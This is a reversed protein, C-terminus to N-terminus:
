GGALMAALGRRGYFPMAFITALALMTGLSDYGTDTLHIGDSLEDLNNAFYGYSDRTGKFRNINNVLLDLKGAYERLLDCTEPTNGATGSPFYTPAHLITIHGDAILSDSIEEINDKYDDASTLHVSQADNDGLMISCVVKAGPNAAVATAIASKANNLNTSGELWDTTASGSIGRNISIITRQGFAKSLIKTAVTVADKGSTAGQGYTISNGIWAFIIPPYELVAAVPISYVKTEDADEYEVVYYLPVNPDIDPEDELTGGTEGALLTSGNPVFDAVTNRHWKKTIPAVGGSGAGAAFSLTTNTAEALTVVGATLEGSTVGHTDGKLYKLLPGVSTSTNVVFVSPRGIATVRDASSDILTAVTVNAIKGILEVNTSNVVKSLSAAILVSGDTAPTLSAASNTSGAIEVFGSAESIRRLIRYFGAAKDYVLLYGSLGDLACIGVGFYTYDNSYLDYQAEVDNDTTAATQSSVLLTVGVDFGIVGGHFTTVIPSSASTIGSVILYNGDADAFGSLAGSYGTNIYTNVPWTM